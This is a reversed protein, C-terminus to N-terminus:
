SLQQTIQPMPFLSVDVLDHFQFYESPLPKEPMITQQAIRDSVTISSGAITSVLEAPSVAGPNIATQLLQLPELIECVRMDPSRVLCLRTVKEFANIASGPIDWDGISDKNVPQTLHMDFLIWFCLKAWSFIDTKKADEFTFLTSASWEPANWEPTRALFHRQHPQSFVRSFGFDAIKAIAAGKADSFVLM